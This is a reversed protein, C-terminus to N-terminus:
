IDGRLKNADDNFTYDRHDLPNYYGLVDMPLIEENEKFGMSEIAEWVLKNALSHIHPTNKYLPHESFKKIGKTILENRRELIEEFSLGTVDLNPNNTFMAQEHLMVNLITKIEGDKGPYVSLGLFNFSNFYINAMSMVVKKSNKEDIVRKLFQNWAILNRKQIEPSSARTFAPVMELITEYDDLTKVLLETYDEKSLKNALISSSQLVWSWDVKKNTETKFFEIKKMVENFYDKDNVVKMLDKPLPQLFEIIMDDRYYENNDLVNFFERLKNISITDFRSPTAIRANKHTFLIDQTTKNKLIDLTNDASFFDTPGIVFERLNLNYKKVGGSLEKARDLLKQSVNKDLSKDVFCGVCNHECGSLTELNILVDFKYQQNLPLSEPGALRMQKCFNEQM